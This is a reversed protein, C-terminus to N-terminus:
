EDDDQVNKVSITIDQDKFTQMLALLDWTNGDEDLLIGNTDWLGSVKLTTTVKRTFKPNEAM